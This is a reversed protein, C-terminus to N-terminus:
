ARLFPLSLVHILLSLPMLFPCSAIPVRISSLNDSSLPRSLFCYFNFPSSSVFPDSLSKFTYLSSISPPTLISNIEKSSLSLIFFCIPSNFNSLFQSPLFPFISHSLFYINRLMYSLKDFKYFLRKDDERFQLKSRYDSFLFISSIIYYYIFYILM